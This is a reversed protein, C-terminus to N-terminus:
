LYGLLALGQRCADTLRQQQDPPLNQWNSLRKRPVTTAQDLWATDIYEPGLFEMLRALEERPRALIDEYRLRLM